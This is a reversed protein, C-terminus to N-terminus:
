SLAVANRLVLSLPPNSNSEAKMPLDMKEWISTWTRCQGKLGPSVGLM